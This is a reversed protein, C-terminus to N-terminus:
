IELKSVIDKHIEEPGPEGNIELYNFLPDGKIKEIMPAVFTEFEALRSAIASETDDSRGRALMREKVSKASVDLNIFVIGQRKAYSFLQKLTDLQSITRPYGDIFLLSELDIMTIASNVFLANTLFDPQFKGQNTTIDRAVESIYVGRDFLERFIDGMIINKISANSDKEIIYNKLLELQTGKGCGSRGIFIFTKSQNMPM